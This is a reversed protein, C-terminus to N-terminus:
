VVSRVGNPCLFCVLVVRTQQIGADKFTFSFELARKFGAVTLVPHNIKLLANKEQLKAPMVYILTVCIM